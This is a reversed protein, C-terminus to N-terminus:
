FLNAETSLSIEPACDRGPIRPRFPDLLTKVWASGRGRGDRLGIEGQSREIGAVGEGGEDDPRGVAEGVGGRLGDGFARPGLVVRIEDVSPHPQAFGM